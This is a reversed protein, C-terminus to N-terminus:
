DAAPLTLSSSLAAADRAACCCVGVGCDHACPAPVQLPYVDLPRLAVVDDAADQFHADGDSDSWLGGSENHEGGSDPLDGSGAGPDALKFDNAHPVPAMPSAVTSDSPKIYGGTFTSASAFSFTPAALPARPSLTRMGGAFRREGAGRDRNTPSAPLIEADGKPGVDAPLSTVAAVGERTPTTDDVYARNGAAAWWGWGDGAGPSEGPVANLRRSSFRVSMDWAPRGGVVARRAQAAVAHFSPKSVPSPSPGPSRGNRVGSAGRVTGSPVRVPRVAEDDDADLRQRM